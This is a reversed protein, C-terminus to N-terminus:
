LKIVRGIYATTGDSIRLWYLGNKLHALSYTSQLPMKQLLEGQANYLFVSAEPAFEDPLNLQIQDNTPNPSLPISKVVIPSFTNTITEELFEINGGVGAIWIRSSSESEEVHIDKVDTDTFHNQEWSEGGDTTKYVRGFASSGGVLYATTDNVFEIHKWYANDPTSFTTWTAGGDETSWINDFLGAVILWIKEESEIHISLISNNGEVPLAEWNDGGDTTKLLTGSSGGALGFQANLFYIANIAKETNTNLEEWTAGEDLSRQIGGQNDTVFINNEVEIVKRFGGIQDDIVYEWSAGGDTTKVIGNPSLFWVEDESRVLGDLYDWSAFDPGPNMKEWNTGGDLTRLITGERGATWGTNPTSFEIFELNAKEGPIQDQYSAGKDTSFYVSRYQATVWVRGDPLACLGRVFSLDLTPRINQWSAGKDTTSYVNYSGYTTVISERDIVDIYTLQNSFANTAQLTWTQGGDSTSYFDKGVGAFGELNDWFKLMVSNNGESVLIPTWSTGGDATHFIEGKRSGVCGHMTDTFHISTINEISDPTIDEWTIGGDLTKSIKRTNAVFLIDKGVPSLFSPLNTGPPVLMEEWTLGDDTSKLIRSGAAWTVRDAGDESTSIKVANFNFTQDNDLVEWTVGFDQTRMLIGKWGVAVGYGNDTMDIDTLTRIDEFPNQRTWEQATLPAIM